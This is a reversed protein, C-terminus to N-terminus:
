MLQWLDIIVQLFIPFLLFGDLDTTAGFNTGLLHVNCYIIPNGSEKEYINGRLTGTQADSNFIVAFIIVMLNVLRISM